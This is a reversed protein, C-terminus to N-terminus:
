ILNLAQILLIASFTGIQPVILAILIDVWM